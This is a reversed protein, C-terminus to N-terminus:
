PTVEVSLTVVGVVPSGNQLFPQIRAAKLRRRVDRNIRVNKAGDVEIDEIRGQKTVIFRLSLTQVKETLDQFSPPKIWKADKGSFSVPENSAAAAAKADAAKQAVQAEKAAKADIAAQAERAEKAAKADALRQAEQEAQAAKEAQAAIIRRQEDAVFSEDVATQLAPKIVEQRVDKTNPKKVPVKPKEKKVVKAIPKTAPKPEAKKVPKDQPVAAPKPKDPKPTPKPQNKAAVEVEDAERKDAPSEAAPSPLSVMQIEIPPTKEVPETIPEPPQTVVLAVATLVHLGVVIVITMLILRFPPTDLDTARM